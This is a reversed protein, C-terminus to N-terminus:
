KEANEEEAVACALLVLPIADPAPLEAACTGTTWFDGEVDSLKESGINEFRVLTLGGSRNLKQRASRAVAQKQRGVFRHQLQLPWSGAM